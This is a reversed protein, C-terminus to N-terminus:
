KVRPALSRDRLGPRTIPRTRVKAMVVFCELADSLKIKKGEEVSRGVYSVPLEFPRYGMRLMECTIETDLGFGQERLDMAELLPRPLLKLCTHLDSIATGFLVNAATTMVTNGFAHVFTPLMTNNGGLRVGYVVEARGSILPRTLAPIDDPDYETDADFVLIHTGRAHSLGTRVAQGKGANAPQHIVRLSPSAPLADLIERTRDTSGDNVVILDVGGHLELALIREVVSGVTREENYAPVIISLLFRGAEHENSM